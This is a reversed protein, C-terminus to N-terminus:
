SFDLFNMFENRPVVSSPFPTSMISDTVWYDRIVSKKILGMFYQLAIFIWVRFMNTGNEPWLKCTSSPMIKEANDLLYNSAYMNTEKTVDEM